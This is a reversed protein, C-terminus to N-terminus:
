SHIESVTGRGASRLNAVRIIRSARVGDGKGDGVLAVERIGVTKSKPNGLRVRTFPVVGGDCLGRAGSAGLGALSKVEGAAARGVWSSLM